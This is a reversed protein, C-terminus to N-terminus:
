KMAKSHLYYKQLYEVNMKWAKKKEQKQSIFNIKKEFNM